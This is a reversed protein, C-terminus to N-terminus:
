GGVYTVQFTISHFILNIDATTGDYITGSGAYMDSLNVCLFGLGEAGQVFSPLTETGTPGGLFSVMGRAAAGLAFGDPGNGTGYSNIFIDDDGEAYTADYVNDGPVIWEPGGASLDAGSARRDEIVIEGATPNNVPDVTPRQGVLAVKPLVFPLVPQKYLPGSESEQTQFAMSPIDSEYRMGWTFNNDYSPDNKVQELGYNFHCSVEVLQHPSSVTLATYWRDAQAYLDIAERTLTFTSIKRKTPRNWAGGVYTKFVGEEKDYAYAGEWTPIAYWRMDGYALENTFPNTLLLSDAAYGWVLISDQTISEWFVGTSGESSVAWAKGADALGLGSPEETTVVSELALTSLVDLRTLSENISAYNGTDNEKLLPLGIYRTRSM